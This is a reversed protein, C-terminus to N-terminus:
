QESSGVLYTVLQPNDRLMQFLAPSLARVLHEEANESFRNSIGTTYLVAHLVEHLVTERVMLDAMDPSVAIELFSHATFGYLDANNEKELEKIRADSLTVTYTYPGVKVTTPASSM